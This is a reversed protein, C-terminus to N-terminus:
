LVVEQKQEQDNEDDDDDDFDTDDTDNENEWPYPPNYRKDVEIYEQSYLLSTKLEEVEEEKLEKKDALEFFKEKAKQHEEYDEQKAKDFDDDLEKQEKITAVKAEAEIINEEEAEEDFKKKLELLQDVEEEKVKQVAEQECSTSTSASGQEYVKKQEEKSHEKILNQYEKYEKITM